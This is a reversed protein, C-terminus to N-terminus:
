IKQMSPLDFLRPPGQRRHEVTVGLPGTHNSAAAAILEARARDKIRQKPPPTHQMTFSGDAVKATAVIVAM